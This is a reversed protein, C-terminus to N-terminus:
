KYQLGTHGFRILMTEAKNWDLSNTSPVFDACMSSDVEIQLMKTGLRKMMMSIAYPVYSRGDGLVHFSKLEKLLPLYGGRIAVFPGDLVAVEHCGVASKTGIVRRALEPNVDSYLSYMGYTSPCNVWSGNPLFYEYGFPAVAAYEDPVARLKNFFNSDPVMSSGAVLIIWAPDVKPPLSMITHARKAINLFVSFIPQESRKFYTVTDKTYFICDNPERSYKTYIGVSETRNYVITVIEPVNSERLLRNPTIKVKAAETIGLMRRVQNRESEIKITNAIAQKKREEQEFDKREIAARISLELEDDVPKYPIPMSRLKRRVARLHSLDNHNTKDLTKRDKYVKYEFVPDVDVGSAIVADVEEKIWGMYSPTFQKATKKLARREETTIPASNIGAMTRCKDKVYTDIWFDTKGFKNKIHNRSYYPLYDGYCAKNQLVVYLEDLDSKTFFNKTIRGVKVKEPVLQRGNLMLRYTRDSIKMYNRCLNVTLKDPLPIKRFLVTAAKNKAKAEAYINNLYLSIQDRTMGRFRRKGDRRVAQICTAKGIRVYHRLRGIKLGLFAACDKMPMKPPLWRVMKSPVYNKIFYDYDKYYIFKGYEDAPQETIYGQKVLRLYTRENVDLDAIIEAPRWKAMPHNKNPPEIGYSRLKAMAREFNYVKLGNLGPQKFPIDNLFDTDTLLSIPRGIHKAITSVPVFESEGGKYRLDGLM